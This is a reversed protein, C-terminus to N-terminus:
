ASGDSVIRELLAALERPHSIMADHGSDLEVVAVEGGPSARL